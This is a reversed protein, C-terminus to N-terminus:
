TTCLSASSLASFQADTFIRVRGTRAICLHEISSVLAGSNTSSITIQSGAFAGAPLGNPLFTIASLTSSMSVGDRGLTDQLVAGSSVSTGAKVIWGVEFGISAVDSCSAGDSSKCITVANNTRLAESRAFQTSAVWDNAATRSRSNEVLSQWLPTALSLLVAVIAIAVMVEILTFGNRSFTVFKHM